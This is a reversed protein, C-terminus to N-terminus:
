ARYTWYSPKRSPHSVALIYPTIGDNKLVYYVIFRFTKTPGFRRQKGGKRVLRYTLPNAGIEEFAADIEARFDELTTFTFGRAAYYLLHDEYEAQAEPHIEHKV